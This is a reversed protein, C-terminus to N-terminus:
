NRIALLHRPLTRAKTKTRRVFDQDLGKRKRGAFRTADSRSTRHRVFLLRRFLDLTEGVSLRESLQTEQLSVGIRERIQVPSQDWRLGLIEAEGSTAKLLGELIEIHRENQRRRKPRPRWLMRRGTSKSISAAFPKSRRNAKTPRLSTRVASQLRPHCSKEQDSLPQNNSSLISLVSILASRNLQWLRPLPLLTRCPLM